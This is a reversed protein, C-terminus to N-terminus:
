IVETYLKELEKNIVDENFINQALQISESSLTQRLDSNFILKNLLYSLHNIDGPNFLLINKQDIVIDKLGGVPTSIVPLEYAWADLVAMPFGEAYSPLCFISAEKFAKDKDKGNIWGLFHVKDEIKLEHTLQKAKEIEGNGAFVLKWNPFQNSILSFARILDAYGKREILGGAYLIYPQKEYSTNDTISTCPNYLVRVQNNLEFTECVEKKWYPSLVLIMDTQKFLYQYFCKWHSRITTESSFSHFHVITRKRWLKAWWMFVCKRLASPPESVHIHILQASPLYIIYLFFARLAYIFKWHLGKDIHTEIWKCHFDNWQKGRQHSHIVNTIGGRTKHSTAIILVKPM